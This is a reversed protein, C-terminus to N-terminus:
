DIKAILVSVPSMSIKASGSKMATYSTRGLTKVKTAHKAALPVIVTQTSNTPNLVVVYTEKGDSRTYVMPYPHAENYIPTWESNSQFAPTEKRLEILSRTWNLLSEPDKDQSEVTIMGKTTPNRCGDEKWKLYATYNNAPTWEPCVPLYVSDASCTSFGANASSDWQMPSRGGSREKGNYNSGDRSPLGALSRIGIEDGYYLIPLRQTMIWAMMVKLQDATNRCGTNFRLHDHNGTIMAYYGLHATKEDAQRCHDFYRKLMQAADVNRDIEEVRWPNDYLDTTSPMGGDLSFYCGGNALHKEDFYMRRIPFKRQNLCMDINFGGELSKEPDGWEAMLVHDPYNEDMWTRIERWLAQNASCDPDDKILSKAMDVRFGDVGKDFWFAIVNKLEQKVARPGPADVGQQWPKSLDPHAYGFNLSPQCAFFNKMYFKGRPANSSMWKGLTNQFPNPSALMKTLDSSDKACLLEDSWIYYDSYRQNADREMSQRFWPHDMSTHGPVLDLFLRIGRKHCASVLTALDTNTGFRPDVKYFDKIDYGGDMWASEFIPNFWIVDVGLSEIYDLKEMIGSLDGIGDGDSDKYSSPYIQYIVADRLWEPGKQCTMASTTPKIAEGGTPFSRIVTGEKRDIGWLCGEADISIGQGKFPISIEGTLKMRMGCEPFELIFLKTADHGTCYFKGDIFLCGSISHPRLQDLLEKPLVWGNTRRWENDYRVIQSWSADKLVEGGASGGSRDYHAFGVYWCNDGRVVWTCSGNDIGLSITKIHRLDKTDFVEISSAMPVEPFNSHSCYLLGGIVIGGDFHKIMETEKWSTVFEGGKTYKAITQNGIAYFYDCDTAVGQTAEPCIFTEIAKYSDVHAQLPIAFLLLACFLFIRDLM